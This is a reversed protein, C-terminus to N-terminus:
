MEGMQELLCRRLLDLAQVVAQERIKERNGRLRFERVVTKGNLYCGIYVLGVPKEKTGGDPGAIGTVSLCADAGAAKAGGIAMAEAVEASVATHMRLLDEPVGLLRHKAEDCYTVLSSKLVESAGSVNILRAAVLGGTCSEAATVTLGSEKLLKVVVQELTEDERVTFINHGFRRYLEEVVPRIIEEAEDESKARATVRIDCEATKAYTAITPNTQADILDKIMTEARSEGVGCLKVMESYITEPCRKRLYPEVQEKFLPILENPPGPLLIACKGDKEIILGPATGNHNDLVIAGEPVMAQKWNNDTIQKRGTRVFYNEIRERSHEDLYLPLGMVKACIEKTLDDETPGLGGTLILIDSRGFAQEFCATMREENDGVVSQYYMSLGLGACKEALYQTNTNVINGLLLETGVSIVEVVM